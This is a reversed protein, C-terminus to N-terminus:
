KAVNWGCLFGIKTDISEDKLPEILTTDKKPSTMFFLDLDM